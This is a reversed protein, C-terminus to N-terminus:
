AHVRTGLYSGHRKDSKAMLVIWLSVVESYPQIYRVDGTKPSVGIREFTCAVLYQACWGTVGLGASYM